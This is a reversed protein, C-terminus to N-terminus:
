QVGVTCLALEIVTIVAFNCCICCNVLVENFNERVMKLHQWATQQVRKRGWSWDLVVSPQSHNYIFPCEDISNCIYVLTM